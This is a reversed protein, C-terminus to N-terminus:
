GKSMDNLVLNDDQLDVQVTKAWNLLIHEEIKFKVLLAQADEPLRCADSILEYGQICGAFVQFFFAVRGIALEAM